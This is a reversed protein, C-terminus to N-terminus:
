DFRKTEKMLYQFTLYALVNFEDSLNDDGYLLNGLTLNFNFNRLDTMLIECEPNNLPCDLFYHKCTENDFGCECNSSDIKNLKLLDNKLSSCDM